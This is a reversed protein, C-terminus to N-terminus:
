RAHLDLTLDALQWLDAFSWFQGDRFAVLRATLGAPTREVELSFPLEGLRLPALAHVEGDVIMAWDVTLDLRAIGTLRDGSVVPDLAATSQLTARLGTLHVGDPPVVDAGIVVDDAEIALEDVVLLGEATTWLQLHGGAVPIEVDIDAGGATARASAYSGPEGSPALELVAPVHLEDVLDATPEPSWVDDAEGQCSALGGAALVGLLLRSIGVVTRRVNLM